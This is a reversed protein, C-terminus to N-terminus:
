PKKPQRESTKQGQEVSGAKSRVGYIVNLLYKAILTFIVNFMAVTPIGTYFKIRNDDKIRAASIKRANKLEINQELLKEELKKKDEKLKCAELTREVLKKQLSALLDNNTSSISNSPQIEDDVAEPEIDMPETDSRCDHMTSVSHRM